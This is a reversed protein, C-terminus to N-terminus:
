KKLACIAHHDSTYSLSYAADVIKVTNSSTAHVPRLHLGLHDFGVFRYVNGELEVQDKEIQHRWHERRIKDYLVDVQSADEAIRALFHDLHAVTKGLLAEMSWTRHPFLTALCTTPKDNHVNM